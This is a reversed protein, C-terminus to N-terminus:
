CDDSSSSVWGTRNGNYYSHEAAEEPVYRLGGMGYHAAIPSNSLYFKVGASDALSMAEELLKNIEKSIEDLRTVVDGRLNKIKAELEAIEEERTRSM